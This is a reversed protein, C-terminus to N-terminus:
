APALPTTQPGTLVYDVDRMARDAAPLKGARAATVVDGAVTADVHEAVHVEGRNGPSPHPTPAVLLQGLQDALDIGQEWQGLTDGHLRFAGDAQDAVVDATALFRGPFDTLRHHRYAAFTEPADGLGEAVM